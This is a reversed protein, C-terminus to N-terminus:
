DFFSAPDNEDITSPTEFAPIDPLDRHTPAQVGEPVSDDIFVDTPAKTETSTEKAKAFLDEFNDERHVSKKIYFEPRSCGLENAAVCCGVLCDFWHNEKRGPRLQWEYVIRERGTTPTWHEATIHNALLEHERIDDGFITFSGPDGVATMIRNYLFTKWFNVDIVIHRISQTNRSNPYYWNYGITEGAQKRRYAIPKDKAGFYKGHSPTLINAYQSEYCFQDVVGTSVGWNADIYCKSIKMQVGDDRKWNRALVDSTLNELGKYLRGELGVNPYLLSLTQSLNSLEFFRKNQKPFTGYDVLSGTFDDSFACVAYFLVEKQVDIFCTLKACSRPVEGRPRGNLKDFVHGETLQDGEMEEVMPEQQFESAFAQENELYKNMLFQLGSIEKPPTFREPWAVIAGDDMDSRHAQYFQTAIMGDGDEELERARIDGYEHWLTMNKPFAYLAKLREGQWEPHKKRTLLLDAMDNKQIVTCPCIASISKGAGPLNLIAKTVCEIRKKVQMPSRASEDTQPDDIICLTPRVSSGDDKRTYKMGRIGGTIGAYRIVCQSAPSDRIAPLVAMDNNWQIYTPQGSLHQGGARQPAGAVEAIPYCVEPFDDALLENTELNTKISTFMALAAGAESGVILIFKHFGYLAAWVCAIECLTTKGSGRPMAIAFLGGDRVATEIKALVKLHDNSWPITFLQPFYHECFFRFSEKAKEKDKPNKVDPLPAIDRGARSSERMRERMRQKHKEYQERRREDEILESMRGYDEDRRTYKNLLIRDDSPSEVAQSNKTM